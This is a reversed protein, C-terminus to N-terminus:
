AVMREEYFRKEIDSEATEKEDETQEHAKEARLSQVISDYLELAMQRVQEKNLVITDYV